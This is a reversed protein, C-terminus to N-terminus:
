KGPLMLDGMDPTFKDELNLQIVNQLNTSAIVIKRTDKSDRILSNFFARQMYVKPAAQFAAQQNTFYAAQALARQEIQQRRANAQRRTRLAEATALANTRIRHAQAELLNAERKQRAGVVQEYSQAVGVPPHIDALGVFLVKVGLGQEDARQQIRQRLEAAAAARGSSTVEQYDASVMYRVVERTALEELLRHADAFKYAYAKLDQVQFHVPISASLLSVPPPKKAAGPAAAPAQDERGAVMLHFEERAHSITWLITKHEEEEKGEDAGVRIVQVEKTRFRYVKDIPWPLKFHLGPGLIERTAVPRGFRELLAEEGAQVFVLMTSLLLLGLQALILWALAKEMFRYFWTESVKFGFQYDVAHAATTVIGEPHSLLGILRSEYLLRAAQGKIRPRYRELVLTLVTEISLLILLVCLVRAAIADLQPLQAAWTLGIVLFTLFYLYAGLLLYSASPGLL